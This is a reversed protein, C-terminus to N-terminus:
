YRAKKTVTIFMEMNLLWKNGRYSVNEPHPSYKSM